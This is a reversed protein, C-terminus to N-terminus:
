SLKNRIKVFPFWIFCCVVMCVLQVLVTRLDGGSALFANIFPPMVWPVNCILKASFGFYIAAYGIACSVVPCLIFPIALVPNMVIPLGFLVPENVGFCGPFLALKAIAKDDDRKSALLIVILLPLTCGFGGITAYLNWFPRTVIETPEMGAAVLEANTALAALTMPNTIGNVLSSGHIGCLWFLSAFMASFIIGLPHQYIITIPTQLTQFIFTALNTGTINEFAFAFGGVCITVILTPILDTFSQAVAPPVEDPLTIRLQKIDCLKCFATISVIGVIMAVFLGKSATVNSSLVNNVVTTKDEITATVTTPSVLIFCVLSLLGEYTGDKGYQKALNKGILFAILLAIINMTAYNLQSFWPGVKNLFGLVEFSSLGGTGFLSGIAGVITFPIIAIFSDKITIIYKNGNLYMAINSLVETCRDVM